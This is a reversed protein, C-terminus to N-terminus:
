AGPGQDDDLTSTQDSDPDEWVVRLIWDDGTVEIDIAEGAAWNSGSLQGGWNSAVEGDASPTTSFGEGRVFVNSQELEDGDEHAVTVVSPSPDTDFEYNFSTTPAPNNQDGLGLVFSAIVAALIVTIAVMLIVGIVPSVADDDNFLRKLNM